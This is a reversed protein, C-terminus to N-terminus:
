LLHIMLMYGATGLVISLLTNHRWRYTLVVIMVGLLQPVTQVASQTPIDKLCYIVLVAMIAAPLAEGLKTLWQPVASDKRVLAFPLARMAFTCLASVLIVSLTHMTM